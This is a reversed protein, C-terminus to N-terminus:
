LAPELLKVAPVDEREGDDRIPRLACDPCQAVKVLKGGIMMPRGSAAAVHWYHYWKTGKMLTSTRKKRLIRLVMGLTHPNDTSRMVVIALDGKKCNMMDDGTGAM